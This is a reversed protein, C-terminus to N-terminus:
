LKPVEFSFEPSRASQNPNRSEIYFTHPGVPLRVRSFQPAYNEVVEDDLKEGNLIRIEHLRYATAGHAEDFAITTFVQRVPKFHSTVVTSVDVKSVWNDEDRNSDPFGLAILDGNQAATQAYAERIARQAEAFAEAVNHRNELAQLLADRAALIPKLHEGFHNPVGNANPAAGKLAGAIQSLRMLAAGPSAPALSPEDSLFPDFKM